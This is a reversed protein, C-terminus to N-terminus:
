SQAEKLIERCKQNEIALYPVGGPLADWMEPPMLYEVLGLGIGLICLQAATFQECWQVGQANFPLNLFTCGGAEGHKFFKPDQNMLICAIEHKHHELDDQNLYVTGAFGSEVAEDSRSSANKQCKEYIENIRHAANM